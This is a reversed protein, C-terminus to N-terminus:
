SSESSSSETSSSSEIPELRLAEPSILLQRIICQLDSRSFPTDLAYFSCGIISDDSIPTNGVAVFESNIRVYVREYPEDLQDMDWMFEFRIDENAEAEFTEDRLVQRGKSTWVTFETGRPTLAAYLSPQCPEIQGINVGWLIHEDSERYGGKLPSYVGNEFPEPFNLIVGVYGKAMSFLKSADRCFIGGQSDLTKRLGYGVGDIDIQSDVPEFYGAFKMKTENGVIPNSISRLSRFENYYTIEM